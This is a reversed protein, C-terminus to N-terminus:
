IRAFQQQYHKYIKPLNGNTLEVLLNNIATTRAYVKPIQPVNQCLTRLLYSLLRYGFVGLVHGNCDKSVALRIKKGARLQCTKNAKSQKILKRVRVRNVIPKNSAGVSVISDPKKRFDEFALNHLNLLFDAYVIWRMEKEFYEFCSQIETDPNVATHCVPCLQFFTTKIVEQQWVDNEWSYGHTYFVGRAIKLTGKTNEFDRDMAVYVNTIRNQIVDDAIQNVIYKSGVSKFKYKKKSFTSFIKQWFAIDESQAEHSGALVEDYTYTHTGGEVYVVVDVSYFLHQNSLGSSTRRFSM